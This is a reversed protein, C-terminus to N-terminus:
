LAVERTAGFRELLRRDHTVLVVTGAYGALAAELEEIAPLDLHNTPEDLILCNVGQAALLALQARTREGPSLTRAPRLVDNAGLGFKALLTRAEEQKGGFAQVLPEDVTFRGRMQELEGFVVGKGVERTGSALPLEGTLASLLTSKGSGNAGTLALRDGRALELDVPGLRFAGREVVARELRVVRDGSRSGPELALQLEWPEFPKEVRDVRDLMREAQRVKMSLAHTGRRGAGKGHARAQGRRARLLSEVDRRREHADEYRRYQKDRARSRAAEYESWGGPWERVRQRGEELEVIRTVTRDLFERDHSVMVVSGRVGHVLRELWDLGAFDLDNTPEDLCYVDHDERFLAALRAKAAQGGSLTTRESEQPLYGVSLGPPSRRVRGREPEELGALLRLLTTKGVGNPGVLGVRSGATVTLSVGSFIEHVGHSVAVDVLTISSM